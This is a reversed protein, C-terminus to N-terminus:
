ESFTVISENYRIDVLALSRYKYVLMFLLKIKENYSIKSQIYQRKDQIYKSMDIKGYDINIKLLELKKSMLAILQKERKIESVLYDIYDLDYTTKISEEANVAQNNLDIKKIEQTLINKRHKNEGWNLIPMSLTIAVNLRNQKDHLLDSFQNAQSNVGGGVSLSVTPSSSIQIEKLQQELMAKEYERSVETTYRIMNEIVFDVNFDFPYNEVSENDFSLILEYDTPIGLFVNLQQQAKKLAMFNNSNIARQYEIQVDLYDEESIRGEKYLAGSKIFIYESLELITKNLDIKQQEIYLNFFHEVAQQKIIEKRQIFKINDISKQIEYLKKSWKYENYGTIQQSYSFNILNLNYSTNNQPSFNDLRSMNSSISLTGGTFPLLQYIGLTADSFSTFRNIYKESGDSQTVESINKNLNPLTASLNVKPLIKLKFLKDQYGRIMSDAKLVGMDNSNQSLDIAEDLTLNYSQSKITINSLLLAFILLLKIKLNSM